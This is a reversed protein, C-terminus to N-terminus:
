QNQAAAIIQEARAVEEKRRQWYDKHYQRNEAKHTANYNKHYARQHEKAEPTLEEGAHAANYKRHAAAIQEPHDIAYQKHYDASHKKQANYKDVLAKNRALEEELEQKTM